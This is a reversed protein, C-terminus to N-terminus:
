TRASAGPLWHALSRGLLAELYRVDPAYLQELRERQAPTLAPHEAAARGARGLGPLTRSLARGARLLPYLHRERAMRHLTSRVKELRPHRPIWAPNVREEPAVPDVPPVALFRCLEVLVRRPDSRVDDLVVFHVREAGFARQWRPVHAAYHGAELIRPLARTAADFDNAVRGRSLHHVFSSFAREVPDRVSVVIRCRPSADQVREVVAPDDFYSPGFEGLLADPRKAVDFHKLYWAGGRDHYRDFFFTEKIPPRPLLLEPHHELNAHLWSTGARQPGVGLFALPPNSV